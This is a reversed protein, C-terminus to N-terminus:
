GCEDAVIGDIAEGVARRNPLTDELEGGELLDIVGDDESASAILEFGGGLQDVLLCVSAQAQTTMEPSAWWADVMADVDPGDDGCAAFLLTASMLFYVLKRPM